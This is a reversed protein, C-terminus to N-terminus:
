RSTISVSMPSYDIPSFSIGQKVPIFIVVRLFAPHVISFSSLLSCLPACYATSQFSRLLSKRAPRPAM